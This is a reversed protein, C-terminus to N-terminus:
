GETTFFEDVKFKKFDDKELYEEAQAIDTNIASILADLGDFKLEPRLYGAIIIKLHQDYFDNEFKHMIHTEISKEKNDFCPNWGISVVMKYVKGELQAFGFYVGTEFNSPLQDVVSKPFNATPIGLQKSGRGFGKVVTGQARHPLWPKNM